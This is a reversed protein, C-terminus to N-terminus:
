VVLLVSVTDSFKKDRSWVVSLVVLVIVPLLVCCNSVTISSCRSTTEAIDM